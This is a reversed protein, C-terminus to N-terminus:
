AFETFSKGSYANRDMDKSINHVVKDFLGDRYFGNSVKDCQGIMAWQATTTDAIETCSFLM